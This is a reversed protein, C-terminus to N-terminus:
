LHAYSTAAAKIDEAKARKGVGEAAREALREVRIRAMQGGRALRGDPSDYLTNMEHVQPGSPEAKLVALQRLFKERDGIRLKVEIEQHGGAKQARSLPM